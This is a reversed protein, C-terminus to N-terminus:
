LSKSAELSARSAAESATREVRGGDMNDPRSLDWLKENEGDYLVGLDSHVVRLDYITYPDAATGKTKKYRIREVTLMEPLFKEWLGGLKNDWESKEIRYAGWGNIV